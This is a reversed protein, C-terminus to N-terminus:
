VLYSRIAERDGWNTINYDNRGFALEQDDQSYIELYSDDVM